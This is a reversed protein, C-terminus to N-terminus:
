VQLSQDILLSSTHYNRKKKTESFHSVFTFNLLIAHHM